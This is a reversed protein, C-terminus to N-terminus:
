NKSGEVSDVLSINNEGDFQYIGVFASSPDNEDDFPGIGSPGTYRIDDGGDIAEICEAFTACETGGDAGSVAHLNAQITAPDTAGGKAAALAALIVADYSEAAYSFDSLDQGEAAQYWDTLRGKFDDSADAGPITGKAGELTGPDFEDGYSSTNGDSMYINAMDWQQAQLEPIIAKTEDFALVVIADPNAALAGTVEASFSTQAPPFEQGAGKGGYVVESGAEELVGQVVDRLGTGYSDNFVLFAVRQHGDNAVQNGLVDGQILDPPATRFYFPDAGSLSVATNAPSIQVIEAGTIAGIINETVSSSAAGVIMSVNSQIAQQASGNAVSADTADGSDLILHCADTGAVGGAANIDSVALGVGAIEPPGLFALNGTLPLIGGAKFTDASSTNGDCEDNTFADEADGTDDPEEAPTTESTDPSDGAQPPDTDDDSGCATLSLSLVAAGAMLKVWTATKSRNM